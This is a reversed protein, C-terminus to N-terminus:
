RRLSELIERVQDRTLPTGAVHSVIVPHGRREVVRARAYAPTIEIGGDRLEVEVEAGAVLGASERLKKPIVIRGAADITTRM